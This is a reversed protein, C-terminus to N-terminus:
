RGNKRLDAEKIRPAHFSFDSVDTDFVKLFDLFAENLNQSESCLCFVVGEKLPTEPDSSKTSVLTHFYM